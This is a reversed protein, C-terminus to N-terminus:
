SAFGYRRPAVSVVARRPRHLDNFTVDDPLRSVDLEANRHCGPNSCCVFVRNRGHCRMNALPVPKITFCWTRSRGPCRRDFRSRPCLCIMRHPPDLVPCRQQQDRTNILRISFRRLEVARRAYSVLELKCIPCVLINFHQSGTKQV